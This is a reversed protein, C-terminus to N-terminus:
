YDTRRGATIHERRWSVVGAGQIYQVLLAARKSQKCAKSYDIKSTTELELRNKFEDKEIVPTDKFFEWSSDDKYYFLGYTEIFCSYYNCLHNIYQGAIYEYVLNDSNSRICSKLVTYASYNDHTFKIEKVFGNASVEGIQKINGDIYDLDVFHNFYDNIKMRNIVDYGICINPDVCKKQKIYNSRLKKRTRELKMFKAINMKAREEISSLENIKKGDRKVTKNNSSQKNIPSIQQISKMANKKFLSVEESLPSGDALSQSNNLININSIQSMKPTFSKNKTKNSLVNSSEM